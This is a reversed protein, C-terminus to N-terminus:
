NNTSSSTSTVANAASTALLVPAIRKKQTKVIADQKNGVESSVTVNTISAADALPDDVEMQNSHVVVEVKDGMVTTVPASVPSALSPLSTSIQVPQIRKRKKQGSVAVANMDDMKVEVDPHLSHVAATPSALSAPSDVDMSIDLDEVAANTDKETSVPRNPTSTVNSSAEVEMSSDKADAGEGAVATTTAAVVTSSETAVTSIFNYVCPHSQKVVTPVADDALVRGLANPQFRVFTLYGDSSCVVLVRGDATWAADNIPAYHIGALKMLPHPHQTDYIFVSGVTVVAYVMRYTGEFLPKPAPNVSTVPYQVLEFLKPCFRIAVSAEDLGLLSICPTAWQDRAFIHTAFSRQQQQHQQQAVSSAIKQQIPKLGNNSSSSSPPTMNRHVGTPVVLLCGDPSFSLRRCLFCIFQVAFFFNLSTLYIGSFHPFM